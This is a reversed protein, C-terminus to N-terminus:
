QGLVNRFTLNLREGHVLRDKPVAHQFTRQCTGGMFLLSGHTLELEFPQAVVNRKPRLLFRRAVGFSLSAVMPLPGLEPEDDAHYGMSDGGNRYCNALVMNFRATTAHEVRDRLVRLSEPWPRADLTRGSYTYPLDAAWASLRPERIPRGFMRLSAQQWDLERRLTEHFQTAADAALWTRWLLLFAGAGLEHREAPSEAPAAGPLTM